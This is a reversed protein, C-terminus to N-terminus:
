DPLIHDNSFNKDKKKRLYHATNLILIKCPVIKDPM